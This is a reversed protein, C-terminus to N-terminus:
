SPNRRHPSSWDAVKGIFKSKDGKVELVADGAVEVISCGGDDAVAYLNIDAGSADAEHSGIIFCPSIGPVDILPTRAVIMVGQNVLLYNAIEAEAVCPVVIYDAQGPVANLLGNMDELVDFTVGNAFHWHATILSDHHAAIRLRGQQQAVSASFIHRWIGVLLAPDLDPAVTQLRRIIAAERGPRVTASGNKAAAVLGSIEFRRELLAIIEDDLSDLASRLETLKDTMLLGSISAVITGRWHSAAIRCYGAGLM